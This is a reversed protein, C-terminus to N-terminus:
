TCPETISSKCQQALTLKMIKCVLSWSLITFLGYSVLSSCVTQNSNLLNFSFRWFILTQWIFLIHNTSFTKITCVVIRHNPSSLLPLAEILHGTTFKELFIRWFLLRFTQSFIKSFTWRVRHLSTDVPAFPAVSTAGLNESVKVRDGGPLASKAWWQLPRM